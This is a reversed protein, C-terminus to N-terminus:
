KSLRALYESPNAWFRGPCNPCCFGIVRGEYVILYRADIAAGSVPCTTNVPSLAAAQPQGPVPADSTLRIEDEVGLAAAPPSGGVDITLGPQASALRELAEASLGSEWAYLRRLRGLSALGAVADDSLRTRVLVLEELAPHDRLGALDADSVTSERLDLRRLHAAGALVTLAARGVACRALSVDALHPQLPTLLAVIEEEPLSRAAAFDVWLLRGEADVAQVHVLRDRLAALAEPSPLTM